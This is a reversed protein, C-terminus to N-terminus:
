ETSVSVLEMRGGGPTTAEELVMFGVAPCYYKFDTSTEIMSWDKIQLCNDFTDARVTVKKDLAVVTGMDEARGKYYEQRYTDGVKPNAPMIIGPKAGDVGAQWSGKDDVLKGNAYNEVAEGFYWVNGQKDQAYWDSTNEKLVGREWEAFRVVITTVGMVTKTERTVAIEVRETGARNQYTFKTGPKLTFYKHTVGSVFDAPNIVPDYAETEAPTPRQAWSSHMGLLATLATGVAAVMLHTKLM